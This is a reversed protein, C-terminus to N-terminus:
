IVGMLTPLRIGFAFAFLGHFVATVAVAYFIQRIIRGDQFQFLRFLALVFLLTSVGYGLPKFAAIYLVTALVILFPQLLSGEPQEHEQTLDSWIIRALGAYMIFAIVLPMFSPGALGESIQPVIRLAAAIYVTTLIFLFLPLLLRSKWQLRPTTM